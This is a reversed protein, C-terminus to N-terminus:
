FRPLVFKSSKEPIDDPSRRPVFYLVHFDSHYQNEGRDEVCFSKTFEFKLGGCLAQACIFKNNRFNLVQAQAVFVFIHIRYACLAHSGSNPGWEVSM